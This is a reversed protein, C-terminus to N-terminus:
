QNVGAYTMEVWETFTPPNDLGLVEERYDQVMAFEAHNSEAWGRDLYDRITIVCEDPVFQVAIDNDPLEKRFYM